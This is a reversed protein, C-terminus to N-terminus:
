PPVGRIMSRAQSENRDAERQYRTQLRHQSLWTLLLAAVITLWILDRITFRM